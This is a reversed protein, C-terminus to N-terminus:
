MLSAGNPDRVRRARLAIEWHPVPRGPMGLGSVMEPVREPLCVGEGGSGRRCSVESSLLNAISARIAAKSASADADLVPAASSALAHCFVTSLANSFAMPSAITGGVVTATASGGTAGCVSM